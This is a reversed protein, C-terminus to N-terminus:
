KKGFVTVRRGEVKFRVNNTRELAKLVESVPKSRAIKLYFGLTTQKGEYRVEIGYWRALERMVQEIHEGNFTFDGKTWATIRDLDATGVTLDNGDAVAENGPELSRRNVSIRGEVLATRIGPEDRYANVNFVTGIDAIRVGKAQVSVPLGEEHRIMFYAEGEILELEAAGKRFNEPFRLKSAVNVLVESGDALKVRGPKGAVTVELTDYITESNTTNYALLDEGSKNVAASLAGQKAKELVIAKGHGTHLIAKGTFPRVDNQAMLPPQSKRTLFYTAAGIVLLISAAAAIRPWLRQVRGTDTSRIRADIQEKLTALKREEEATAASEEPVSLEAEILARLAAEDATGFYRYLAQLEEPSCTRQLFSRYLFEPPIQKAL